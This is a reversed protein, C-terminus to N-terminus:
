AAVKYTDYDAASYELDFSMRYLEHEGPIRDCPPFEPGTLTCSYWGRLFLEDDWATFLPTAGSVTLVPCTLKWLAWLADRTARDFIGTYAFQVRSWQKDIDIQGNVDRRSAANSISVPGQRSKVHVCFVKGANDKLKLM